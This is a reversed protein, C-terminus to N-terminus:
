NTELQAPRSRVCRVRAVVQHGYAHTHPACVRQDCRRVHGDDRARSCQQRPGSSHPLKECSRDAVDIQKRFSCWCARETQAYCGVIDYDLAPQLWKAQQEASCQLQLCPLFAIEHLMTPLSEDVHVTLWGQEEKATTLAYVYAAPVFVLVHMASASLQLDKSVEVIRKAKAMARTYHQSHNLFVRDAKSFVPDAEVQAWLAEKRAQLCFDTHNNEQQTSRQGRVTIQALFILFPHSVCLAHYTCVYLQVAM